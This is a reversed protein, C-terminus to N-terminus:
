LEVKVHEYHTAVYQQVQEQHEQYVEVLFSLVQSAEDYIFIIKERMPFYVKDNVFAALDISHNKISEAKKDFHVYQDTLQYLPQQRVVSLGRMGQHLSIDLLEASAEKLGVEGPQKQAFVKERNKIEQDYQELSSVVYTVANLTKNQLTALM